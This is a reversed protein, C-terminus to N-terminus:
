NHLELSNMLRIAYNAGSYYEESFAEEKPLSFILGTIYGNMPIYYSIAVMEMGSEVGTFSYAEQLMYYNNYSVVKLSLYSFQNMSDNKNALNKLSKKRFDSIRSISKSSINSCSAQDKPVINLIGSSHGQFAKTYSDMKMIGMSVVLSGSGDRHFEYVGMAEPDFYPIFKAKSLGQESYIKGKLIRWGDEFELSCQNDFYVRPSTQIKSESSTTKCGTAALLFVTSVGLIKCRKIMHMAM